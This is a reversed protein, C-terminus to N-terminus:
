DYPGVYLAATAPGNAAATAVYRGDHLSLSSRQM